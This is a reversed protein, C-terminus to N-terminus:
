QIQLRNRLMTLNCEFDPFSAPLVRESGVQASQKSADGAALANTDRATRMKRRADEVRARLDEPYEV